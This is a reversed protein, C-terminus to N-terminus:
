YGHGTLHSTEGLFSKASSVCSGAVYLSPRDLAVPRLGVWLLLDPACLPACESVASTSMAPEFSSNRRSCVVFGLM